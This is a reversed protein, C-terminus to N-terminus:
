KVIGQYADMMMRVELIQEDIQKMKAEDKKAKLKQEELTALKDKWPAQMYNVWTPMLNRMGKDTTTQYFNKLGVIAKQQVAKDAMQLYQVYQNMFAFRYFGLKGLWSEFYSVEDNTSYDALIGAISVQLKANNIKTFKQIYSKASVSDVSALAQLGTSVVSYASDNIATQYVAAHKSANNQSLLTVAEARNASKDDKVALEALKADFLVRQTPHLKEVASLGLDRVGWFEHNLLYNIIEEEYATISDSMNDLWANVAYHKDMFLPTEMIAAKYESSPKNDQIVALLSREADVNLFKIRADTTIEFTQQKETVTISEKKVGNDTYVDVKIPLKYVGMASDQKQTITLKVSQKTDNYTYNYELIPHGAKLFWQNFFWNLDKGTVEEFAMRLDALEATKYANKTLYLKLSEFFLKM